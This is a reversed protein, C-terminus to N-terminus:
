FQHFLGKVEFSIDCKVRSSTAGSVNYTYEINHRGASFLKGPHSNPVVSMLSFVVNNPCNPQPIDWSVRASSGAQIVFDGLEM